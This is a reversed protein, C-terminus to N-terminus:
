HTPHIGFPIGGLRTDKALKDVTINEGPRVRLHELLDKRLTVQGNATVTLTIM